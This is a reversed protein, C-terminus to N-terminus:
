KSHDFRERDVSVFTVAIGRVALIIDPLVKQRLLDAHTQEIVELYGALTEPDGPNIDFVVKGVTVGRLADADDPETQVPSVLSNSTWLATSLLCLSTAALVPRHAVFSIIQAISFEM